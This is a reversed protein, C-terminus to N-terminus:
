GDRCTEDDHYPRNAGNRLLEVTQSMYVLFESSKTFTYIASKLSRGQRAPIDDLYKTALERLVQEITEEIYELSCL